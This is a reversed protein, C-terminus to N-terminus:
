PATRRNAEDRLMARSVTYLAMWVISFFLM